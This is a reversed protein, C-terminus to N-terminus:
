APGGGTKDAATPLAAPEPQLQPTLTNLVLQLQTEVRADVMGYDGEVLCGGRRVGEDPVLELRQGPPAAQQGWVPGLVTADSPHIRVRLSGLPRAETLARAFAAELAERPLAVGEGFLVKAVHAALELIAQESQAFMSTRWARVEDLVGQAALLLQGADAEAAEYGERRAQRTVEAAQEKAVRVVEQAQEDALQEFEASQARALREIEAAKAQAAQEIGEAQAQAAQLLRARESEAEVLTKQARGEVAALSEDPRGGPQRRSAPTEPLFQLIEFAPAAEPAAGEDLDEWASAAPPEPL